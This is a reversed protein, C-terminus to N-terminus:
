CRRVASVSSGHTFSREPSLLWGAPTQRNLTKQPSEDSSACTLCCLTTRGSVPACNGHCAQMRVSSTTKELPPNSKQTYRKEYPTTRRRACSTEISRCRWWFAVGPSRVKADLPRRTQAWGRSPNSGCAADVPTYAVEGDDVRPPASLVLDKKRELAGV